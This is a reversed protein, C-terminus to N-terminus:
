QPKLTIEYSSQFKMGVNDDNDISISNTYGQESHLILEKQKSSKVLWTRCVNFGLDNGEPLIIGIFDNSGSYDINIPHSKTTTSGEITIEDINEGDIENAYFQIMENKQLSESPNKSMFAWSGSITYSLTEKIVAHKGSGQYNSDQTKYSYIVEQKWRGDRHIAIENLNISVQIPTQTNNIPPSFIYSTTAQKEEGITIIAGKEFDDITKTEIKYAVVKWQNSLKGKTTKTCSYLLPIIFFLMFLKTINIQKTKM